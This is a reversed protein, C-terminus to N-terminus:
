SQPKVDASSFNTTRSDAAISNAVGGQSAAAGAAFNGATNSWAVNEAGVLNVVSGLNAANAGMVGMGFDALGYQNQAYNGGYWQQMQAQQAANQAGFGALQTGAQGYMGALSNAASMQQGFQAMSMQDAMAARQYAAAAEQSALGQSFQALEGLMRGSSRGGSAAFKRSLAEQGQQLRFQYGPDAEIGKNFYDNLRSPQNQSRQYLSSLVDTGAGYGGAIDARGQQASQNLAALGADRSQQLGAAAQGYATEGQAGYKDIQEQIKTQAEEAAARQKNAAEAGQQGQIISGTIAGAGAVIAAVWPM